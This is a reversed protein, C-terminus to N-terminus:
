ALFGYFNLIQRSILSYVHKKKTEKHEQAKKTEKHEQAKQPQDQHDWLTRRMYTIFLSTHVRM